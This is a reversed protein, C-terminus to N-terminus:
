ANEEGLHKWSRKHEIAQITQYRVGFHKALRKQGIGQARARRIAIVNDGTLKATPCKEGCVGKGRTSEINSVFRGKNIADRTNEKKTGKFLHDPNGCPPNDCRHLVCEWPYLPEKKVILYSLIHAGINGIARVHVNGYGKRFRAGRYIWCSGSKDFREFFTAVLEPPLMEFTIVKNRM